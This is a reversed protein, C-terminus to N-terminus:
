LIQKGWIGTAAMVVTVDAPNLTWDVWGGGLRRGAVLTLTRAGIDSAKVETCRSAPAPAPPPVPRPKGGGRHGCRSGHGAVLMRWGRSVRSVRSVTGHM